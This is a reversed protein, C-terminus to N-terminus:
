LRCYSRGTKQLYYQHYEEAKYFTKAPLIETAIDKKLRKQQSDRSEIAEKKQARDYYFIVSRYQTGVDPGQRDFQTPDHVSWFKELLKRYSILNPDFEVLCVEVHGTGNQCVDEYTPDKTKGGMYGVTTKEIGKVKRFEEQVHWFCGAGFTAKKFIM